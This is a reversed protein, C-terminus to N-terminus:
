QSLPQQHISKSCASFRAPLTIATVM